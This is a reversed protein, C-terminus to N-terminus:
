TSGDQTEIGERVLLWKPCCRSREGTDKSLSDGREPTSKRDEGPPRVHIRKAREVHADRSEWSLLWRLKM